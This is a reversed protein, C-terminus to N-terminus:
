AARKGEREGFIATGVRVMTAGEKIAAEFDQSMGMSLTDMTHGEAVLSEFVKRLSAFESRQRSVDNTPSAMGMLGRLRVGPLASIEAALTSADRLEIGGKTEEHSINVQICVNVPASDEKRARALSAAIKARDVAHVWDFREGVDRAKNSQLHGIFHWTIPLEALAAIKPMADQVYNEGFDRCGATFAERIEEVSRSKSVAVLTVVRRDGQLAESIRRRVAQLNAPISSM